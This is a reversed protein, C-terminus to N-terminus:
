LEFAAIWGVAQTMLAGTACSPAARSVESTDGM